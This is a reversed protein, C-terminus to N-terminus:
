STKRDPKKDEPKKPKDKGPGSKNIAAIMAAAEDDGGVFRDERVKEKKDEPM